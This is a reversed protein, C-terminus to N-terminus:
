GGMGVVFAFTCVIAVVFLWGLFLAWDLKTPRETPLLEARSGHMRVFLVATLITSSVFWFQLSHTAIHALGLEKGASYLKRNSGLGILMALLVFNTVLLVRAWKRIKGTGPVPNADNMERWGYISGTPLQDLFASSRSSHAENLKRSHGL